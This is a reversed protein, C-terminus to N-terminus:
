PPSVCRGQDNYNRCCQETCFGGTVRSCWNDYVCGSSADCGLAKKCPTDSCTLSGTATCVGSSNCSGTQCRNTPTCSTGSPEHPYVCAGTSAECTGQAQDCAGSPSNCVKDTGFCVGVNNCKDFETCPNGDNCSSGTGKLKYSCTNNACTGSAEHCQDPPQDCVFPSGSICQGAGDCTDKVTCLQGDDCAAGAQKMPYECRGSVCTGLSEHCQSPPTNCRTSPGCSESSGGDAVSGGDTSSSDPTSTDGCIAARRAPDVSACFDEDVDFSICAAVCLVPLALATWVRRM